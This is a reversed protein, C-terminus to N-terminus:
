KGAEYHPFAIATAGQFHRRLKRNIEKMAEEVQRIEEAPTGTLQGEITVEHRRLTLWNQAPLRPLPTGIPFCSQLEDETIQGDRCFFILETGEPPELVVSRHRAPYFLRDVKEVVERVPVFTKLEGAANFWYMTARHGQSVDCWVALRDGTQLPIENSLTRIGDPHFIELTPVSQVSNLDEAPEREGLEAIQFLGVGLAAVVIIGAAIRPTVWRRSARLLEKALNEAAPREAPEAAM